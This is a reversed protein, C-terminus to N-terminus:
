NLLWVEFRREVGVKYFVPPNKKHNSKVNFTAMEPFSGSFLAPMDIKCARIICHEGGRM